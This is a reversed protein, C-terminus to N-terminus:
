LDDVNHEAVSSDLINDKSENWESKFSDDKRWDNEIVRDLSENLMKLRVDNERTQQSEQSETVDFLLKELNSLNQNTDDDICSHERNIRHENATNLFNETRTSITLDSLEDAANLRDDNVTARMKDYSDLSEDFQSTIMNLIEISDYNQLSQSRQSISELAQCRKSNEDVILINRIRSSSRKDDCSDAKFPNSQYFNIVNM